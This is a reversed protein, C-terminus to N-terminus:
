ESKIESRDYFMLSWDNKKVEMKRRVKEYKFIRSLIKEYREMDLVIGQIKDNECLADTNLINHQLDSLYNGLFIIKENVARYVLDVDVMDSFIEDATMSEMKKALEFYTPDVYFSEGIFKNNAHSKVEIEILDQRKIEIVKAEIMDSGTYLYHDDAEPTPRIIDGVKFKCDKVKSPMFDFNKDEIEDSREKINILGYILGDYWFVSSSANAYELAALYAKMTIAIYGEEGVYVPCFGKKLKEMILNEVERKM